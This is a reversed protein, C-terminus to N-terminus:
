NLASLAAGIAVTLQSGASEVEGAKAPELSLQLVKAPNWTKCPVILEAQLMQVILDSQSSGGSLFVQSVTKDEQHEFFDISARLERGLPNVTSELNQQVETAMGIKINEAEVYTISMAESLGQTIRDGGIAVVRNLKIDGGDLITITTNKFGIDVLAVVEKAFAGPEALEFANAPGILGPVIEEGLYGATKIANQLDEILLRKAAGVMVKQKQAGAPKSEGPKAGVGKALSQPSYFCDFVHDPLDQQLYNKSNYKLMLRIEDVPMLPLDVQRFMADNVGVALALSKTRTGGLLKYVTKLHEALIDPAYSKEYIPADLIAFSSLSYSDGRRQLHVAKTTRGGLDIAVIQDRRKVQRNLFPLGMNTGSNLVVLALVHGEEPCGECGQSGGSEERVDQAEFPVSIWEL